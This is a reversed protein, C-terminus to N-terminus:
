QSAVVAIAQVERGLLPLVDRFEDWSRPTQHLLLVPRGTGAIACHLTGAPTAVFRREIPIETM